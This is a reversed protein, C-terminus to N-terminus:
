ITSQFKNQSKPYCIGLQLHTCLCCSLLHNKHLKHSNIRHNTYPIVVCCSIAKTRVKAVKQTLLVVRKQEPKENGSVRTRQIINYCYFWCRCPSWSLLEHNPPTVLDPFCNFLHHKEHIEQQRNTTSQIIYYCYFWCHCAFSLLLSCYLWYNM